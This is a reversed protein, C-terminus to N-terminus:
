LKLYNSVKKKIVKPSKNVPDTLSQVAKSSKTVKPVAEM